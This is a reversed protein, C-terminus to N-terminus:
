FREAKALQMDCAFAPHVAISALINKIIQVDKIKTSRDIAAMATAMDVDCTISSRAEFDQPQGKIVGSFTGGIIILNQAILSDLFVADVRGANPVKIVLPTLASLRERTRIFNVLTGDPQRGVGASVIEFGVEEAEYQATLEGTSNVPDLIVLELENM